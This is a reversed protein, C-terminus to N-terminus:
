PRGLVTKATLSGNNIQNVGDYLMSKLNRHVNEDTTESVLSKVQNQVLTQILSQLSFVSHKQFASRYIALMKLAFNSSM